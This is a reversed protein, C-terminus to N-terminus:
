LLNSVSEESLVFYDWNNQKLWRIFAQAKSKKTFYKIHYGTINCERYDVRWIKCDELAQSGGLTTVIIDDYHLEKLTIIKKTVSSKFFYFRKHWKTINCLRFDLRWM